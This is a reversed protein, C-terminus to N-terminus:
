DKVFKTVLDVRWGGATKLVPEKFCRPVVDEDLIKSLNTKDFVLSYKEAKVLESKTFRVSKLSDINTYRIEFINRIGLMLKLIQTVSRQNVSVLKQTVSRRM